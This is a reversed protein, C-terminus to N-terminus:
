SNVEPTRSFREREKKFQLLIFARFGRARGLAALRTIQGIHPSDSACFDPVESTISVGGIMEDGAEDTGCEGADDMIM